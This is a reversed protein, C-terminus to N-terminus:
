WMWVWKVFRIVCIIASLFFIVIFIVRFRAQTQSGLDAGISLNLQVFYSVACVILWGWWPMM